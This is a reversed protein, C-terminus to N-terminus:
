DQSPSYSTDLSTLKLFPSIRVYNAMEREYRKKDEAAQENYPKKDSEDLAKWADGQLKGLQGVFNTDRNVIPFSSCPQRNSSPFDIWAGFPFVPIFYV